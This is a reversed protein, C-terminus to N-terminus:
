VAVREVLGSMRCLVGAYPRLLPAGSLPGEDTSFTFGMDRCLGALAEAQDAQNARMELFSALGGAVTFAVAFAAVLEFGGPLNAEFLRGPLRVHCLCWLATGAVPGRDAWRTMTTHPGM